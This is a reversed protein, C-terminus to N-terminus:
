SQSTSDTTISAITRDAEPIIHLIRDLAGDLTDNIEGGAANHHGGGSFYKECIEKVSFDGKSRMSVKVYGPEDQRLYVSYIIGPISLPINVLGETDGKSYGFDRADDLSLTIIACHHEPLVHTRAYQCFGMLRIRSLSNTNFLRNYLDDKDVGREMLASLISYLAPDNANYAFNGTDTMMGACCCTAAELGVFESMGAADLMEYVLASTSSKSPDSILIEPKIVPNLHHDVVVVPAKAAEVMPATRDIRKLDNFDLCFILDAHLFTYKARDHNYSAVTINQAGPLFTLSRPPADPTIVSANKGMARLAHMLCLSSGLADGDPTMHCVIAVKRADRILSAVKDIIDPSLSTM